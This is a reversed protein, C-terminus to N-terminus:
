AFGRSLGAGGAGFRIQTYRADDRPNNGALERKLKEYESECTSELQFRTKNLKISTKDLGEIFDQPVLLDIDPAAHIKELFEEFIGGGLVLWLHSATDFWLDIVNGIKFGDADIVKWKGLQSFKVDTKALVEKDITKCLSDKDVKLYVKDSISDIDSVSCVPDIDPRAGIKELFEEIKGGGLIIYKLDIKNGSISFIGDTVTGIREGNSDFVDKNKIESYKMNCCQIM